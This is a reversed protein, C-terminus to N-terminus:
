RVVNPLPTLIRVSPLNSGILAIIILWLITWGIIIWAERRYPKETMLSFGYIFGPIPPVFLAIVLGVILWKRRSKLVMQKGAGELNGDM